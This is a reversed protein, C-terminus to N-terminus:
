CKKRLPSSSCRSEENLKMGLKVNAKDLELNRQTEEIIDVGIKRLIGKTRRNERSQRDFTIIRLPPVFLKFFVLLSFSKPNSLRHLATALESGHVGQHLTDLDYNFGSLSIIDLAARSVWQLM